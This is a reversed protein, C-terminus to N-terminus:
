FCVYPSYNDNTGSKNLLIDLGTLDKLDLFLLKKKISCKVESVKSNGPENHVSHSRLFLPQLLVKSISSTMSQSYPQFM